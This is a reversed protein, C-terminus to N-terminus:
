RTKEVHDVSGTRTGKELFQRSIHRRHAKVQAAMRSLM